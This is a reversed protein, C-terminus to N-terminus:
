SEDMTVGRRHLCVGEQVPRCFIYIQTDDANAHPSLQHRKVLQLLDAVYLLFLIPGLVSGPPVRCGVESPSSTTALSRIYQTQGSLYSAFWQLIVDDLGYSESFFHATTSPTLYQLCTQCCWRRWTAPTSHKFFTPLSRCFPLRWWITHETHRSDTLSCVTRWWTNWLSSHSLGNSCSPCSLCTPSRGTLNSTPRM